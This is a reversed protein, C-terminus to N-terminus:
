KEWGLSKTTTSSKADMLCDLSDYCVSEWVLHRLCWGCKNSDKPLPKLCINRLLLPKRQAMIWPGWSKRSHPEVMQQPHPHSKDYDTYLRLFPLACKQECEKSVNLLQGYRVGLFAPCHSLSLPFFVAPQVMLTIKGGFKRDWAKWKTQLEPFLNLSLINAVFGSSWLLGFIGSSTRREHKIGIFFGHLKVLLQSVCRLM